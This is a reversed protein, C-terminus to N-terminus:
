KKVWWRTSNQRPGRKWGVRELIAAIRRADTTGIRADSVFGLACKAILSIKAQPDILDNLYNVIPDEWPDEEFRADQEPVIHAAEFAKDPWWQVGNQFSRVAEAFLQDRDRKLAELNITGTTVPWYRRGGTEDRLYVTM